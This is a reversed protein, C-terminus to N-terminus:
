KPKNGPEKQTHKKTSRRTRALYLFEFVMLLADVSRPKGLLLLIQNLCHQSVQARPNDCVDVDLYWVRFELM